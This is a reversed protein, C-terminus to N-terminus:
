HTLGDDELKNLVPDITRLREIEAKDVIVVADVPKDVWDGARGIDIIIKSM